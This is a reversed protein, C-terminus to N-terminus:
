GSRGIMDKYRIISDLRQLKLQQKFRNIFDDAKADVGEDADTAKASGKEKVTAPRRAEVIDEEEFHGFSSKMTASKKMKKTLKTPIEGASPRTDSKTRSVHNGSLMSYVEDMNQEGEGDNEARTTQFDDVSSEKEEFDFHTQSEQPNHGFAYHTQQAM